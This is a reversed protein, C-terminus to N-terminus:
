TNLMSHIDALQSELKDKLYRDIRNHAAIPGNLHYDQKDKPSWLLRFKASFKLKWFLLGMRSMERVAVLATALHKIYIVINTEFLDREVVAKYNLLNSKFQANQAAPSNVAAFAMKENQILTEKFQQRLDDIILSFDRSMRFVTLIKNDLYGSESWISLLNDELPHVAFLPFFIAGISYRGAATDADINSIATAIKSNLFERVTHKTDVITNIYHVILKELFILNNRRKRRNSISEFIFWLLLPAAAGIIAGILTQWHDLRYWFISSIATSSAPVLYM